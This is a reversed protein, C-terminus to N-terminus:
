DYKPNIVIEEKQDQNQNSMRPALYIFKRKTQNGANDYEFEITNYDAPPPDVIAAAQTTAGGLPSSLTSVQSWGFNTILLLSFIFLLKKM